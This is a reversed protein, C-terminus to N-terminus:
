ISEEDVDCDMVELVLTTLVLVVALWQTAVEGTPTFVRHQHDLLQEVKFDRQLWEELNRWPSPM